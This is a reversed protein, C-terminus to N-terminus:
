SASELSCICAEQTNIIEMRQPPAPHHHSVTREWVRDGQSMGRHLRKLTGDANSAAAQTLPQAWRFGNPSSLEVAVTATQARLGAAAAARSLNIKKEKQDGRYAQSTARRQLFAQSSHRVESWMNWPKQQVPFLLCLLQPTGRGLVGSIHPTHTPDCSFIFRVSSYFAVPGDRGKQFEHKCVLAYVNVHACIFFM